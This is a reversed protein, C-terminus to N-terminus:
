ATRREDTLRRSAAARRAGSARGAEVARRPLGTARAGIPPTSGLDESDYGTVWAGLYTGAALLASDETLCYDDPGVPSAGGAWGISAADTAANGTYTSAPPTYPTNSGYDRYDLGYGGGISRNNILTNLGVLARRALGTVSDTATVGNLSTERIAFNQFNAATDGSGVGDNAGFVINNAITTGIGVGHLVIGSTYARDSKLAPIVVNNAIVNDYVPLQVSVSDGITLNSYDSASISLTFNGGLHTTILFRRGVMSANTAAVVVLDYKSSTYTTQAVWNVSNLTVVSSGGLTKITDFERILCEAAVNGVTDLSIGEESTGVVINGAIVNGACPRRDAALNAKGLFSIGFIGGTVLNGIVRHNSGWLQLPRVGDVEFFRNHLYHNADGVEELCVVGYFDNRQIINNRHYSNFGQGLRLLPTTSITGSARLVCDEIVAHETFTDGSVAEAQLRANSEILIELGSIRDRDAFKLIQGTRIILEAGEAATLTVDAAMTFGTDISHTGAQLEYSGAANLVASLDTGAAVATPM